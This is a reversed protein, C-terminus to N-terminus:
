WTSAQWPPSSALPLDASLVAGTWTALNPLLAIATLLRWVDPTPRGTTLPRTCLGLAPASITFFRYRVGVATMPRTEHWGYLWAESLPALLPYGLLTVARSTRM